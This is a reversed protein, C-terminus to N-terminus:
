QAKLTRMPQEEGLIVNHHFHTVAFPYLISHHQLFRMVAILNIHEYEESYTCFFQFPFVV